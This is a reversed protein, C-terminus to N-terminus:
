YVVAVSFCLEWEVSISIDIEILMLVARMINRAIAM